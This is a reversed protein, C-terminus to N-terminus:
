LKSLSMTLYSTLHGLESPFNIAAASRIPELTMEVSNLNEDSPNSINASIKLKLLGNLELGVDHEAVRHGHRKIRWLRELTHSNM